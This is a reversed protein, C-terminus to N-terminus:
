PVLRKILLKSNTLRNGKIYGLMDASMYFLLMYTASPLQLSVYPANQLEHFEYLGYKKIFKVSM